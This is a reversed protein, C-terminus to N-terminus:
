GILAKECAVIARDNIWAAPLAATLRQMHLKEVRKYGRLEEMTKLGRSVDHLVGEPADHVLFGQRLVELTHENEIAGRLRQLSLARM